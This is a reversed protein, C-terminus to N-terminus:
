RFIDCSKIVTKKDCWNTHRNCINFRPRSSLDSDATGGGDDGGGGSMFTLNYIHLTLTIHVKKSVFKSVKVALVEDQRSSVAASSQVITVCLNSSPLKIQNQTKVTVTTHETLRLRRWREPVNTHLPLPVPLLEM